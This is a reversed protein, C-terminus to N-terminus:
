TVASILRNAMRRLIRPTEASSSAALGSNVDLGCAGSYSGCMAVAVEAPAAEQAPARVGAGTTCGSGGAAATDGGGGGGAGVGGGEGTPGVATASRISSCTM